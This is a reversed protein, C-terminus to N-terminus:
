RNDSIHDGIALLVRCHECDEKLDERSYKKECCVPCWFFGRQLVAVSEGEGLKKLKKAFREM